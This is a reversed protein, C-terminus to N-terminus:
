PTTDECEEFSADSDYCEDFGDGGSIADQNIGGEIHDDGGLAEFTEPTEDGILRDGFSSGVWREVETFTDTGEGIANNRDLRDLDVPTKSNEWSVTDNGFFGAFHDPGTGGMMLDDGLNAQIIDGGPGGVLKDDETGGHLADWGRGARIVDEGAGGILVNRVDSGMIVDDYSGTQAQEISVLTDAGQGFAEGTDLNVNMPREADEFTARDSGEGGNLLDAGAAGELFDPGENGRIVDNEGGGRLVDLETGGSLYDTGGDGDIDDSGRGGFVRDSGKAALVHDGGGQGCVSDDGSKARIVDAGGRGAIVDRGNTGVINDDGSTGTITVAKADCTRAALAPPQAVTALVVLALAAAWRSRHM